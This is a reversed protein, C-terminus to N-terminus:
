LGAPALPPGLGVRYLCLWLLVPDRARMGALSVAPLAGLPCHCVVTGPPGRVWHVHGECPWLVLPLVVSSVSRVECLSVAAVRGRSTGRPQCSPPRLGGSVALRCGARGDHADIPMRPEQSPLRGAGPWRENGKWTQVDPPTAPLRTGSGLLLWPDAHCTRGRGHGSDEPESAPVDM